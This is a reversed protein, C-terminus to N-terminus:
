KRLCCTTNTGYIRDPSYYKTSRLLIYHRVNYFCYGSVSCESNTSRLFFAPFRHKYDGCTLRYYHFKLSNFSLINDIFPLWFNRNFMFSNQSLIGEVVAALHCQSSDSNRWHWSSFTCMTQFRLVHHQLYLYGHLTLSGCKRSMRSASPSPACM